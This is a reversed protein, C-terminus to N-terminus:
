EKKQYFNKDNINFGASINSNKFRAIKNNEFLEFKHKGEQLTLLILTLSM